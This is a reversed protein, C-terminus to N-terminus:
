GNLVLGHIYNFLTMSNYSVILMVTCVVRNDILSYGKMIVPSM